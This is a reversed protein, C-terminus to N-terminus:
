FNHKWVSIKKNLEFKPNQNVLDLVSNYLTNWLNGFEFVIFSVCEYSFATKKTNILNHISHTLVYIWIKWFIVRYKIDRYYM